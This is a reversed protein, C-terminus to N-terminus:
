KSELMEKSDTLAEAISRFLSTWERLEKQRFLRASPYWPMTEGKLGYRWEPAAPLIGWVPKGLAGTLHILSTQVSIVLDLASVLAATENYDDIAEEWHHVTLGHAKKLHELEDRCDTYQLSIFHANEARLVPLWDELSTSRILQRTEPTGGKWSIGIKLGNGLKGLRDHWLAARDPDAKLYGTHAPFDDLSNRFYKPLSGSLIEYDPGPLSEPLQMGAFRDDVHAAPFSRRFISVLKPHCLIMCSKSRSIIDSYCSAFMIDDGLGQEGRILLTKQELSSGNWEPFHYIKNEQLKKKRHEYYRWGNKFDNTMLLILGLNMNADNSDPEILLAKNYYDIAVKHDGMDKYINGLNILADVYDPSIALAKNAYEMADELRGLNRLTAAYNSNTEAADPNVELLRELIKLADKTHGSNKYALALNNLADQSDPQMELVYEFSAIADEYHGLEQLICGLNYHAVENDPLAAIARECYDRAQELNGMNMHAIGLNTLADTHTPQLAIVRELCHVSEELDGSQGKLTGLMFWVDVDDPDTRSATSFLRLAGELDNNQMCDFARQKDPDM